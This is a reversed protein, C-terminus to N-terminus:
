TDHIGGNALDIFRQLQSKQEGTGPKAKDERLPFVGLWGNMTSQNLIAVQRTEDQPALEELKNRLMQEAKSTLKKKAAARMERFADFAEALAPPDKYIEEEKKM